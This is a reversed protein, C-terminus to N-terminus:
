PFAAATRAALDYVRQSQERSVSHDVNLVNRYPALKAALEPRLKDWEADSPADLYSRAELYESQSITHSPDPAIVHGSEGDLTGARSRLATLRISQLTSNGDRDLELGGLGALMYSWETQATRFQDASMNQVDSASLKVLVPPGFEGVRFHDPTLGVTKAAAEKAAQQEASTRPRALTPATGDSSVESARLVEDLDRGAESKYAQEPSGYYALDRLFRQERAATANRILQDPSAGSQIPEVARYRQDRFVNGDTDVQDVKSGYGQGVRSGATSAAVGLVGTARPRKKGDPAPSGGYATSLSGGVGGGKGYADLFKPMKRNKLSPNKAAMGAAAGGALSRSVGGATETIRPAKGQEAGRAIASPMMLSSRLSTLNGMGLNSMLRRLIVVAIVPSVIGVFSSLTLGSGYGDGGPIIASLATQVLSILLIFAVLAGLFIFRALLFGATMRLMKSAMQSRTGDATPVAAMVLTVPLLAVMVVLGVQAMLAGGALGLLVWAYILATAMAVLSETLRIGAADASGFHTLLSAEMQKKGEVAEPGRARVEATVAIDEYLSDVRGWEYVPRGDGIISHGVVAGAAGFPAGTKLLPEGCRIARILPFAIEQPAPLGACQSVTTEVGDALNTIVEASIDFRAAPANLDTNTWWTSCTAPAIGDIDWGPRPEWKDTSTNFDCVVWIFSDAIQQSPKRRLVFPRASPGGEGIDGYGTIHNYSVALARADEPDIGNAGDLFHCGAKSWASSHGFNASLYSRLFAGEWLRSLHKPMANASQDLWGDNVRVYTQSGFRRQEVVRVSSRETYAEYLMAVYPACQPARNAGLSGPPASWVSSASATQQDFPSIAADLVSGAVGNVLRNAYVALGAPSTLPPEAQLNDGADSAGATLTQLLALPLVVTVALRFLGAPAGGKGRRVILRIGVLLGFVLVLSVVVPGGVGASINAFFQNVETAVREIVSQSLAFHSVMLVVAWVTKAFTFFLGAIGNAVRAGGMNSMSELFGSSDSLPTNGRWRYAPLLEHANRYDYASLSPDTARAIIESNPDPAVEAEDAEPSCVDIAQCDTDTGDIRPTAAAVLASPSTSAIQADPGRGADALTSGTVTLTVLAAWIGMRTWRRPHRKAAMRKV